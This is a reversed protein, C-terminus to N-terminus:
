ADFFEYDINLNAQKLNRQLSKDVNKPKLFKPRTKSTKFSQQENIHSSNEDSLDDGTKTTRSKYFEVDKEDDSEALVSGNSKEKSPKRVHSLLSSITDIKQM